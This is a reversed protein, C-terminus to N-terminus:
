NPLWALVAGPYILLIAIVILDAIIFWVIGKFIVHTPITNGVVGKVVYVNLGVPPTVLGIEIFKIMIIGFWILNADLALLVPLLIPLIILLMGIADLFLGLIILVPAILLVLQIEDSVLGTVLNSLAAPMGSLAVFRTMLAAGIAVVFIASTTYITDSVAQRFKEWTMTRKLVGIVLALVAGVAGAETATFVGAFLGGLVGGILLILPWVDMLAVFKERLATEEKPPAPAITPTVIARIMVVAASVAISILGASLGAIFLHSIPVGVYVGYLILLISPPILSGLTGASAAIGSALGPNYGYKLMEPTAMRALAASAALSSGTAASFMGATAISAIGLGGPLWSLWLRALRFLGAILGARDAIYGMLLFMPISSLSWHATFDYPIEAIAGFAARMGIMAWIGFFSVLGLSIGIPVRLMLLLLMLCIGLVGILEPALNIMPM